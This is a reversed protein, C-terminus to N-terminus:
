AADAREPDYGHGAVFAVANLMLLACFVVPLDWVAGTAVLPLYAVPLAVAAWFASARVSALALAASGPLADTGVPVSTSPKSTSM